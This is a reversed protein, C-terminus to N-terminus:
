CCKKKKVPGGKGLEVVDKKEPEKKKLLKQYADNAIHALGKDIGINEKASTGFYALNKQKALAKIEEDTIQWEEKPKDVKNGFLVLCPDEFNDKIDNLWLNINNFSEKSSVDFVLVIGHVSKITSFAASRFREQGATDWLCLKIEKNNSLQIKKEFKDSGITTISESAFEVGTFANCIASKGVKSDGLLGVKIAKIEIESM